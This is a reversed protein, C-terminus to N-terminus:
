FCVHIVLWVASVCFSTKIKSGSLSWWVVNELIMITRRHKRQGCQHM